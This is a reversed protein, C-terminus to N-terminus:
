GPERCEVHSWLSVTDGKQTVVKAQLAYTVGAKFGEFRQSTRTGGSVPLGIVYDPGADADVGDSVQAVECFWEASIITDGSQMDKAFDLTYIESEGPDSPDFDRGAYM